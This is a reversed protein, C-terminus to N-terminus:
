MRILRQDFVIQDLTFIEARLAGKEIALQRLQHKLTENLKGEEKMEIIKSVTIHLLSLTSIALLQYEPAKTLPFNM